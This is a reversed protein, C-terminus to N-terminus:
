KCFDIRRVQYRYAGYEMDLKSARRNATGWNKYERKLYVKNKLDFIKYTNKM